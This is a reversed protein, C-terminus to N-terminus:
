RYDSYFGQGSKAGLKGQEVYRKFLDRSETPLYPFKDLYNNEIDLAVGLGGAGDGNVTVTIHKNVGAEFAAHFGTGYVDAM